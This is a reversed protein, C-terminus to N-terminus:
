HLWQQTQRIKWVNYSTIVKIKYLQKQQNTQETTRQLDPILNNTKFHELLQNLIVKEHIKLFNYSQKNTVLQYPRNRTKLREITIANNNRELKSLFNRTCTILQYNPDM